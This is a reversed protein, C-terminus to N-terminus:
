GYRRESYILDITCDMSSDTNQDCRFTNTVGNGLISPFVAASPNIDIDIVLSNMSIESGSDTYLRYYFKTHGALQLNVANNLEYETTTGDILTDDIDYWTDPKGDIDIDAIQLKPTGAFTSLNATLTPIGIIPYKVDIDFTVEGSNALEIHDTSYVLNVYSYTTDWFKETSFDDLYDYTGTGNTNLRIISDVNMSNCLETKVTPEETNYIVADSVLAKKLRDYVYHCLSITPWAGSSPFVLWYKIELTENLDTTIAGDWIADYPPVSGPPNGHAEDLLIDAGGNISYTVKIWGNGEGHCSAHTLKYKTDVLAPLSESFRVTWTDADSNYTGPIYEDIEEVQRDYDGGVGATIRIDPITDTVQLNQIPNSYDDATWTENNTTITKTRATVDVSYQYPDETVLTVSWPYYNAKTDLTRNMGQSFVKYEWGTQLVLTQEGTKMFQALVANYAGETLEWGDLRVSLGEHGMDYVANSASGPLGSYINRHKHNINVKSVNIEIGNISTM